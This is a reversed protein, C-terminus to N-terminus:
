SNEPNKWSNESIYRFIRKTQNKMEELYILLDKEQNASFEKILNLAIPLFFSRVTPDSKFLERKKNNFSESPTQINEGEIYFYLCALDFLSNEEVIHHMRFEIEQIIAFAKVFDQDKNIAEKMAGILAKMEKKSLAMEAYRRSEEAAVGREASIMLPDILSYFVTKDASTFVPKVDPNSSNAILNRM